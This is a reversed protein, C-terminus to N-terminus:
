INKFHNIGAQHKRIEEVVMEMDVSRIKSLLKKFTSTVIIM